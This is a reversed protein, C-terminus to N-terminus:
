FTPRKRIVLCGAIIDHLAQKKETWGAMMYGFGLTLNSLLKAFFRGSARGFDLRQGDLDTVALGVAIKGVTGQFRSTEMIAYYLWGTALQLFFAEGGVAFLMAFPSRHHHLLMPRQIALMAGIIYGLFALVFYDIIYAAFRLWFGAFVPAELNPTLPNFYGVAGGPASVAAALEPVAAAPQWDPMGERWVLDQPQVQRQHLMSLLADLAVPGIQRNNQAYFWDM